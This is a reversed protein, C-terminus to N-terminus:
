PHTADHAMNYLNTERNNLWVKHVRDYCHGVHLVSRSWLDVPHGPSDLSPVKESLPILIWLVTLVHHFLWESPLPFAAANWHSSTGSDHNMHTRDKSFPVGSYGSSAKETWAPGGGEHGAHNMSACGQGHIGFPGVSGCGGNQDCTVRALVNECGDLQYSALSEVGCGRSKWPDCFAALNKADPATSDVGVHFNCNWLFAGHATLDHCSASSHPHLTRGDVCHLACARQNVSSGGLSAYSLGLALSTCSHLLLGLQSSNNYLLGLTPWTSGTGPTTSLVEKRVWSTIFPFLLPRFKTTEEALSLLTLDTIAKRGTQNQWPM